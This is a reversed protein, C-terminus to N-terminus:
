YIKQLIFTSFFIEEVDLYANDYLFYEDELNYLYFNDNGNLPYKGFDITTGDTLNVPDHALTDHTNFLSSTGYYSETGEDEEM